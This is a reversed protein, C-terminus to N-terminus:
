QTCGFGGVVGLSTQPPKCSILKNPRKNKWGYLRMRQCESLPILINNIGVRLLIPSVNRYVPMEGLPPRAVTRHLGRATLSVNYMREQLDEWYDVSSKLVKRVVM